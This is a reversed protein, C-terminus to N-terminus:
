YISYSTIFVYPSQSTSLRWPEGLVEKLFPSDIGLYRSVVYLTFLHRDVGHGTMADRYLEQHGEGAQRRCLRM